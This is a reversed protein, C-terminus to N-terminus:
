FLLLTKVNVAHMNKGRLDSLYMVSTDSHVHMYLIKHELIQRCIAAWLQFCRSQLKIDHVQVLKEEKDQFEEFM